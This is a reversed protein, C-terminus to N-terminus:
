SSAAQARVKVRNVLVEAYDLARDAIKEDPDEATKVALFTPSVLAAALLLLAQDEETM